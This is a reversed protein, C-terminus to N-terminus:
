AIARPSGALLEDLSVARGCEPCAAQPAARLSYKCNPCHYDRTKLITVVRDAPGFGSAEHLATLQTFCTDVAHASELCRTPLLIAGGGTQVLAISSPLRLVHTIMSWTYEAGWRSGKHALSDATATFVHEGLAQEAAASEAHARAQRARAEPSVARRYWLATWVGLGGCLPLAILLIATAEITEPRHVKTLLLLTWLFCGAAGVAIANSIRRTAAAAQHFAPDQDHFELNFRVLDAITLEYHVTVVVAPTALIAPDPDSM